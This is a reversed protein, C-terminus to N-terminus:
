MSRGCPVSVDNDQKRGELINEEFNYKVEDNKENCGHNNNGQDDPKDVVWWTLLISIAACTALTLFLILFMNCECDGSMLM